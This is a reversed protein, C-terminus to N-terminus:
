ELFIKLINFWYFSLEIWVKFSNQFFFITTFWSEVQYITLRLLKIEWMAVCYIIEKKKLVM